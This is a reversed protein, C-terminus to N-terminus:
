GRQVEAKAAAQLAEIWSLYEMMGDSWREWRLYCHDCVAHWGGENHPEITPGGNYPVSHSFYGERDCVPCQEPERPWLHRVRVLVDGSERDVLDYDHGSM